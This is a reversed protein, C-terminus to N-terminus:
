GELLFPMIAIRWIYKFNPCAFAKQESYEKHIHYYCTQLVTECLHADLAGAPLERTVLAALKLESLTSFSLQYKFHNYDHVARFIHNAAPSDYIQYDRQAMPHNNPLAGGTYVRLTATNSIDEFMLKSTQYPNSATFIVDVPLNLFQERNYRIFEQYSAAVSEPAHTNSEQVESAYHIFSELAAQLPKM